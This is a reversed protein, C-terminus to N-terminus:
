IRKGKNTGRILPWLMNISFYCVDQLVLVGRILECASVLIKKKKLKLKLNIKLYLCICHPSKHLVFFAEELNLTVVQLCLSGVFCFLSRQLKSLAGM